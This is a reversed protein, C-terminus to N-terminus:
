LLVVAKGYENPIPAVDFGCFREFSELYPPSRISTGFRWPPKIM